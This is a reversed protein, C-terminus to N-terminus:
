YIAVFDLKWSGGLVLLSSLCLTFQSSLIFFSVMCIADFVTEWSFESCFSAWAFLLSFWIWCVLLALRLNIADIITERSGWVYDSDGFLVSFMANCFFRSAYLLHRWFSNRVIELCLSVGAFPLSCQLSFMVLLALSACIADTVEKWSRTQCAMFDFVQMKVHSRCAMFGFAANKYLDPFAHRWLPANQDPFGHLGFAANKYPDPGGCFGFPLM